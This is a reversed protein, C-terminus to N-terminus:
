GKLSMRNDVYKDLDKARWYTKTQILVGKYYLMVTPVAKISKPPDDTDYDRVTVTYGAKVLSPVELRKYRQCPDCWDATWIVVQYSAKTTRPEQNAFDLRQYNQVLQRTEVVVRGANPNLTSTAKATALASHAVFLAFCIYIAAFANIFRKM